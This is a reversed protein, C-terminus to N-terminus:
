GSGTFHLRCDGAHNGIAAHHGDITPPKSDAAGPPDCLKEQALQADSGRGPSPHEPAPGLPKSPKCELARRNDLRDRIGAREEALALHKCYRSAVYGDVQM